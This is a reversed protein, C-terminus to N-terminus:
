FLAGMSFSFAQTEDEEEKMFPAALEFRMPVPGFFQPILIQIGTGVSMRPGGDDIFGIDSFFLWAFTESGLPMSIEANGVVAWDSGIPENSPGGRPSVGRYEFGRLAWSGIGGVYFREFTPADGIATGAHVKTELVTKLEDLDEALTHYWRYTGELLGFTHDGFVQEYGIDFNYGRSPIFRTDTTNKRIYLRTGFLLNSGEVDNVDQPADWELDEVKVNEARFSIGRRWKDPYRKELGVKGALRKEDYTEREREFLSASLSMAIPKDYLYPETFSAAYTSVDTGPSASLRFQQGAGRFASGNFIDKFSSPMDMIDFNRQNLTINGILGDDSGIGAGLMISGTQGETITVLADRTNPDTGIPAIVASEAVVSQKIIKELEGDGDGRAADADYWQGPTFAEEDMIRRITRDQYSTNGTIVVEGVRYRGGENVDFEVKVKPVDPMIQRNISVITEVFGMEGYKSKIKKADFDAWAESYFFDPRLKLEEQLQENTFFQNGKFHISDVFYAPGEKITFTVFARSREKKFDVSSSIHADLFSKKQYVELLKETDAKLQEPSYYVSFFVAKKKKTKITKQLKRSSLSENGVFLVKKIKPRPGEKIQYVVQGFMVAGEDLAIEIWPFGKKKYKEKMADVGARAAFVDLYDGRKFSLEKTLVGDKLKENGKFAISRVLNHEAVVYTLVVRGNEIRTNYYASEVAELKAIRNVDDSVTTGRFAQGPRVRVVSLVEARTLTTHGAVNLREIMLGEHSADDAGAAASLGMVLCIFVGVLRGIRDQRM